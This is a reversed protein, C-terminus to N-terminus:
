RRPKASKTSAKKASKPASQQAPQKAATRARQQTAPTSAQPTETLLTALNALLHGKHPELANERLWIERRADRPHSFLTGYKSPKDVAGLEVLRDAVVRYIALKKGGNVAVIAGATALDTCSPRLKTRAIEGFCGSKADRRLLVLAKGLLAVVTDDDSM